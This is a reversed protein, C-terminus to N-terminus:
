DCTSRWGNRGLLDHLWDWHSHTVRIIGWLGNTIGFGSHDRWLYDGKVHKRGGARPLVVDFHALPTMSEQGGRGMGLANRGICYSPILWDEPRSGSPYGQGETRVALYPDRLWAHGYLEVTSARGVGTPLLSRIRAETGQHVTMVPVYPEGVNQDASIVTGGTTATRNDCCNNSFAQWASAVGGFGQKGFPADPPLGFRFWMPEAGYNIAMHGSDHADEPAVQQWQVGSKTRESALLSIASGNSYRLNLGKQHVMVLDRFEREHDGGNVPYRVTASTRTKRTNSQHNGPNQRDIVDDLPGDWEAGHPEIVLAGIAAKQGQKIRDPPSLNSGGFEVGAFVCGDRAEGSLKALRTSQMLKQLQVPDRLEDPRGKADYSFIESVGTAVSRIARSDRDLVAPAQNNSSPKILDPRAERFVKVLHTETYWQLRTACSTRRRLAEGRDYYANSDLLPAATRLATAKSLRNQTSFPQTARTRVSSTEMPIADLCGFDAAAEVITNLFKKKDIANWIDTDAEIAEREELVPRPQHHASPANFLVGSLEKKFVRETILKSLPRPKKQAFAELIAYRQRVDAQDYPKCVREETGAREGIRKQVIEMAGAYWTFVKTEGPAITNETNIGVNDGDGAHVDYHVMQPHLGIHNSARILNNNFSTAASGRVFPEEGSLTGPDRSIIGALSTYGDLDPMQDSHYPLRNTLYVQLCEGAAARLVLPEVPRGPKIKNQQPDLDDDQVFLIATPDHLPGAGFQKTQFSNNKEDYMEISISTPRPNYVLTGGAPNLYAGPPAAPITVGLSNDLVENALVASVVYPIVKANKPCGNDEGKGQGPALLTPRPNSPLTVLKDSGDNASQNMSRLLGWIGNWLGDQSSDLAYLRDNWRLEPTKPEYDTIRVSFNFQEALGTNQANRWGSHPAQGFGSGAQIWALANISANHEHEHSGAQVKVRVLDGSYARLLPTFPDKDLVGSTLPPYPGVQNLAEIKRDPGTQLAFALDGALGQAQMGPNGDPGPRKPDFVRAGVPENRYNVVLMGIDDASIAEPCPRAPTTAPDGPTDYVAGPLKESGPGGPCVPEFQIIDPFVNPSAPKRVSPNIALRFSNATPKGDKSPHLPWGIGDKNVGYYADKKYAHQFDGFQLFFERHSDDRNDQDTDIPAGGKGTIIAQWSTPGGDQRISPDYLVTGNENHRWLSGAPEALVTGYLGLQQHTSPGLHDHTFTTGLGRHVGGANVVPDSFWRQLTTRAGFWDCVKPIGYLSEFKEADGGLEQWKTKCFEGDKQFNPLFAGNFYPHVAPALLPKAPDHEANWKNIATIRERVMGPSFTGDEYNWGNASGDASTLDWKPLHIHQGIVDTPTTIQFDDAYFAKPVLNTHAYMACDFSNLRMVLPEPPREKSLLPGVDEWLTLIRQQPYHYGLKNFVVDLQLTAGKYIRPSDAGFEIGSALTDTVHIYSNYAGGFFEGDGNRTLVQGKDDICPDHYPAGPVSPAGNTIFEASTVSGSMDFKYTPHIRQAHFQMAVKELLTGREPYYLPKAKEIHKEATFRDLREHSTGGASYGALAHRALGGDHGALGLAPLSSMDLPPTPPRSGVSSLEEPKGAVGAVGAIWFPFGPNTNINFKEPWTVEAVSGYTKGDRGIRPKVTVEM